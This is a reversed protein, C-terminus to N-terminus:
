DEAPDTGGVLAALAAALTLEEPPRVRTELIVAEYNCDLPQGVDKWCIIHDNNFAARDDTRLITRLPAMYRHVVTDRPLHHSTSASIVVFKPNVKDIFAQTNATESGHHPVKIVDAKLTGPRSAELDLLKKEIHGPTGPPDEDREKGNADGTFLLRQAGIELMLVISANNILYSCESNDSEPAKATHLVTFAVSPISPLSFKTVTGTTVAPPHTDELPRKFTIGALDQVNDIFTLYNARGSNNTGNCDRDYGPEWFEQVTPPNPNQGDFNLLRSLGKWHDTDGHTVIVLEIPGDIIPHAKLYEPLVKTSNGGDIIIEKDGIDIIASDGTGVDLFHVKFAVDTASAAPTTPSDPATVRQSWAKSVFGETGNALRIKYWRPVPEILTAAEGKRLQGVIASATSPGSRVNISDVVREAPTIQDAFASPVAALVCLIVVVRLTV